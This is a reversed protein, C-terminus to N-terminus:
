ILVDVGLPTLRSPSSFCVFFLDQYYARHYNYSKFSRSLIVTFLGSGSSHKTLRQSVSTAIIPQKTDIEPRTPQLLVQSLPHTSSHLLSEFSFLSLHNLHLLSPRFPFSIFLLSFGCPAARFADGSKGCVQIVRVIAGLECIPRSISCRKDTSSARCHLGM